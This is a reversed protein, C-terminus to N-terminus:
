SSADPVATRPAKDRVLPAPQAKAHMTVRTGRCELRRAPSPAFSNASRGPRSRAAARRTRRIATPSKASTVSDPLPWTRWRAAGRIAARAQARREAGDGHVRLWAEVFAGILWPWVTGQHYAEDRQRVDGEYRGRYAPDAPALSRLGIPTVLDREVM